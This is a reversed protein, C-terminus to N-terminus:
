KDGRECLESGEAGSPAVNTRATANYAAIGGGAWPRLFLPCCMAAERWLAAGEGEARGDAGM